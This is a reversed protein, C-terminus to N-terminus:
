VAIVQCITWMDNHFKVWKNCIEKVKYASFKMIKHKFNAINNFFYFPFMKKKSVRYSFSYSLVYKLPSPKNLSFNLPLISPFLILPLGLSPINSSTIFFDYTSIFLAPLLDLVSSFNYAM